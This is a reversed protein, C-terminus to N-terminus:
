RVFTSVTLDFEINERNKEDCKLRFEEVSVLYPNEELTAIFDFIQELKCNGGCKIRMVRYGANRTKTPPIVQLPETKINAAKFQGALKDRFLFQQAAQSKPMEFAPLLLKSGDRSNAASSVMKLESRAVALQRRVRRWHEGWQVLGALVLIAAALIGGIRLTRKDKDTLNRM